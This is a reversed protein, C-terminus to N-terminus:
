FEKKTHLVLDLSDIASFILYFIVFCGGDRWFFVGLFVLGAFLFLCSM